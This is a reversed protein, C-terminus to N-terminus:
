TEQTEGAQGTDQLWSGSLLLYITEGLEEATAQMGERVYTEAIGSLGSALYEQIYPSLRGTCAAGTWAQFAEMLVSRLLPMLENQSLIQLMSAHGTMYVGLGRCVDRFSLDCCDEKEEGCVGQAQAALDCCCDRSLAYSVVNEKSAFLSYFTQRSVEARKCIACVSIDSYPMDEMLSVLADAIQKQSTLATKNTGCYM